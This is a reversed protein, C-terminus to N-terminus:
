KKKNLSNLIFQELGVIFDVKGIHAMHYLFVLESSMNKLENSSFIKTGSLLMEKIKWFLIGSVEEPAGGNRIIEQYLIWTNIKDGRSFAEAITFFNNRSVKKSPLNSFDEVTAYKSYKKIESSPIKDETFIFKTQSNKLISLDEASLNIEKNNLFNEILLTPSKDFLSVNGAYEFIKEKNIDERSFIDPQDDEVLKQIFINKKKIDNGTLIYIM